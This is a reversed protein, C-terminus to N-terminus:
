ECNRKNCITLFSAELGSAISVKSHPIHKEKETVVTTCASCNNSDCDFFSLLQYTPSKHINNGMDWKNKNKKYPFKDTLEM